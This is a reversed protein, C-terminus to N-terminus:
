SGFRRREVILRVGVHRAGLYQPDTLLVVNLGGQSRCVDLVAAVSSYPLQPDAEIFLVGSYPDFRMAPECTARVLESLQSPSTPRRNVYVGGDVSLTVLTGRSPEPQEAM